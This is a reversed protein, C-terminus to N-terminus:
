QNTPAAQICYLHKEGRIFVNDREAIPSGIVPDDLENESLLKFQDDKVSAIFLAGDERPAYLFGNAIMPSAYYSNRGKPLADSWITKGTAPDICEIEGRDCIM